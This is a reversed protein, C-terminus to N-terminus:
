EHDLVVEGVVLAQGRVVDEDAVVRRQWSALHAEARAYAVGGAVRAAVAVGDDRHPIVQDTDAAAAPLLDRHRVAGLQADRAAASRSISAPSGSSVGRSSAM